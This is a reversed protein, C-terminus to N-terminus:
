TNLKMSEMVKGAFEIHHKQTLVKCANLIAEHEFQHPFEGDKNSYAYILDYIIKEYINSNVISDKRDCTPYHFCGVHNCAM